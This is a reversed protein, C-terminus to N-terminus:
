KNFPDFSNPEQRESYITWDVKTYALRLGLREMNRQSITGVGAQGVVLQCGQSAAKEIRVQLLAKHCGYGRFSPLTAALGLYGIQQTVSLVAIAAVRKEIFAFFCQNSSIDILTRISDRVYNNASTKSVGFSTFYVDAFLDKEEPEVARIDIHPFRATETGPLGYLVNYFGSQYLGRKAFHWLLSPSTLLPIIEFSCVADYSRYWDLIADLYPLDNKSIHHVRNFAASNARQALFAHAKGFSRIFVGYPNGPLLSLM